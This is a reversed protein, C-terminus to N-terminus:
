NDTPTLPVAHGVNLTTEFKALPIPQYQYILSDAYHNHVMGDLKHILFSSAPPHNKRTTTLVQLEMLAKVHNPSLFAM